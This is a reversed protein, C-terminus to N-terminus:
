MVRSLCRPVVCRSRRRSRPAPTATGPCATPRSWRIGPCRCRIGPAPIEASAGASGPSAPSPSIGCPRSSLGSATSRSTCCILTSVRARGVTASWLRANLEWATRFGDASTPRFTIRDPYRRDLEAEVLPAVDVGNVVLNQIEGDITTDLIEVGRMVVRHLASHLITAGNLRVSSFRTGSLDVHEFESSTLDRGDSAMGDRYSRRGVTLYRPQDPLRHRLRPREARPAHLRRRLGRAAVGTIERGNEGIWREVADYASLIQPFAVQAVTIETYAERHAPEVRHAQGALDAEGVFPVCVEVPGDSDENVEGHYIVM